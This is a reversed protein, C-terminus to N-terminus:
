NYPPIKLAHWEEANMGKIHVIAYFVYNIISSRQFQSGNLFALIDNDWEMVICGYNHVIKIGTNALMLKRWEHKQWRLNVFCSDRRAQELREKYQHAYKGM